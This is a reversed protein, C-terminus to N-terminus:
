RGPAGQPSRPMSSTAEIREVFSSGGSLIYECSRASPSNTPIRGSRIDQATNRVYATVDKGFRETGALSVIVEALERSTIPTCSPHQQEIIEFKNLANSDDTIMLVAHQSPPRVGTQKLIERAQAAMVKEGLDMQKELMLQGYPTINKGRGLLKQMVRTKGFSDIVPTPIADPNMATLDIRDWHVDRGERFKDLMFATRDEPTLTQKFGKEYKMRYHLAKITHACKVSVTFLAHHYDDLQNPKLTGEFLAKKKQPWETHLREDEFLYTRTLERRQAFIEELGPSNVYTIPVEDAILATSRLYNEINEPIEYPLVKSIRYASGHDREHLTRIDESLMLEHGHNTAEMLCFRDQVVECEVGAKKMIHLLTSLQDGLAPNHRYVCADILVTLKKIPRTPQM